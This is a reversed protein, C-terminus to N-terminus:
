SLPLSHLSLDPYKGGLGGLVEAHRRITRFKKRDIVVAGATTLGLFLMEEREGELRLTTIDGM